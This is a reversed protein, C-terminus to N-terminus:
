RLDAKDSRKLKLYAYVAVAALLLATAGWSLPFIVFLGSLTHMAEIPFVFLVWLIRFLCAGLLTIIMVSISYGMGRVAGSVAQMLGNIFSTALTIRLIEVTYKLIADAEPNKADIFFVALRDSFLLIGQGLLVGIVTVQLVTYIISRKVRSADKAGFCQGVVTVAGIGFSSLATHCIQDINGSIAKASVASTPLTNVAASMMVNSIAYLANQLGAPLGLKVIDALAGKDLRLRSLTIGYCEASNKLLIVAIALAAMYQSIVTALAVGLVSMKFVTVFILNLIFNLLGSVSLILLPTKSDGVSRIISSGFNYVSLAPIGLCIIRLYLVARGMLEPKTGMLTLAPKSIALGLLCFAIGGIVSFTMITHSARSVGERDRAGFRQAILISSGSAFGILFNIILSSLASTSGVAALALDDGSFRGVVINDATNYLLQLLASLMIPLTFILIRFFLSGETFDYKLKKAATM